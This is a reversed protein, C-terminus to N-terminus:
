ILRDVCVAALFIASVFAITQFFARNVGALDLRRASRHEYALAGAVLLMAWFYISGLRAVMGFGILAAFM